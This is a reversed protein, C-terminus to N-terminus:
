IVFDCQSDIFKNKKCCFRCIHENVWTQLAEIPLPKAYFYGQVYQGGLDNLSKLQVKNEVGEAIVKLNLSDAMSVIAKVLVASDESTTLDSIFSRDIKITNIPFRRLYSLSSYGTGFDDIALQAGTARLDQLWNMVAQDNDLLISETIELNLLNPNFQTDKLITTLVKCSVVAINNVLSM